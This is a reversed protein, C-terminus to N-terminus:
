EAAPEIVSGNVEVVDGAAVDYGPEDLVAGNVKVKGAKILEDAKRRSTIGAAAIYKNLRMKEGTDMVGDLRM